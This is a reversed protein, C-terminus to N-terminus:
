DNFDIHLDILMEEITIGSGNVIEDQLHKEKRNVSACQSVIIFITGSNLKPEVNNQLHWTLQESTYPIQLSM